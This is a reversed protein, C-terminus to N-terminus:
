RFWSKLKEVFSKKIIPIFVTPFIGYLFITDKFDGNDYYVWVPIIFGYDTILREQSKTIEIKPIKDIESEAMKEIKRQLIDAWASALNWNHKKLSEVTSFNCKVIKM